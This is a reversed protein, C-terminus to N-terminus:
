DKFGKLGISLVKCLSGIMWLIAYMIIFVLYLGNMMDLKLGILIFLILTTM